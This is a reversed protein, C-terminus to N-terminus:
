SGKPWTELSFQRDPFNPLTASGSVPNPAKKRRSGPHSFDPDPIFIGSFIEALKSVIKPNFIRSRKFGSDPISFNPEPIWFLCGAM